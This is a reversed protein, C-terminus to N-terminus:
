CTRDLKDLGWSAGRKGKVQVRSSRHVNRQVEAHASSPASAATEVPPRHKTHALANLLAVWLGRRVGHQLCKTHLTHTSSTSAAFDQAAHATSSFAQSAFSDDNGHVHSHHYPGTSCDLRLSYFVAGWLVWM